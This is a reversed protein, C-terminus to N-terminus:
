QVKWSLYNAWSYFRRRNDRYGIVKVRSEGTASLYTQPSLPTIQVVVDDTNGVTRTDMLDWTETTFNYLFIEQEVERRSFQGEYTLTLESVQEPPLATITTSAQWETARGDEVRRAKIDYTDADNVKLSDLTGWDYRGHDITLSEPFYLTPEAPPTVVAVTHNLKNYGTEVEWSNTSALRISYEPRNRLQPEPDPLNLLLEYEGTPLAEPILIEGNITNTQGPLWLRPDDALAFAHTTGDSHRLILEVARPNFPASFGDNILGLSFKFPSGPAIEKDYSGQSFTLHYGLRQEVDDFCGDTQWQQMSPKYFNQNLYSWHFQSLESIATPCGLREPAPDALYTPNCTEGGMPLWKTEEALYPYEDLTNVYSGGDSASSLFCDNHHGTRSRYSNDHATTQDVPTFDTFLNQKYRPTRVQVSRTTPLADLLAFLVDARDSWSSDPQFHDSFWWEGWLGIFGAQMMAIVDSNSKLLPSLQTLHALIREKSADGYPATLGPGAATASYAFRPIMKLGAQRTINFDAQMLDLYQQSIDSNVFNELYFVRHVLTTGENQRFCQLTASDLPRYNSSQTQSDEYFGREPNAFGVAKPAYNLTYTNFTGADRQNGGDPYYDPIGASNDAWAVWNFSEVRKGFVALDALKIQYEIDRGGTATPTDSVPYYFTQEWAWVLQNVDGVFRYTTIKGQGGQILLDAGISLKRTPDRYGTFRDKDVDILLNYRFGDPTFPTGDAMEYRVYLDDCDHALTITKWDVQDLGGNDGAPDSVHAVANEWGERRDNVIISMVGVQNSIEVAPTTTEEVPIETSAVPSDDVIIPPPTNPEIQTETHEVPDDDVIISEPDFRNPILSPDDNEENVEAYIEATAVLFLTSAILPYLSRFKL